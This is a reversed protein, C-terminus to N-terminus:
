NIEIHDVFNKVYAPELMSRKIGHTHEILLKEDLEIMDLPTLNAGNYCYYVTPKKFYDGHQNRIHLSTPEGLIDRIIVSSPNEIILPIKIKEIMTLLTQKALEFDKRRNAVWAEIQEPTM